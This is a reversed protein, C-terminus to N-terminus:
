EKDTGEKELGVLTDVYDLIDKSKFSELFFPYLSMSSTAMIEDENKGDFLSLVIPIDNELTIKCLPIEKELEDRSLSDSFQECTLFTLSSLLTNLTEKGPSSNDQFKWSVLSQGKDDKSELATLTKIIGGKELIIKKISDEKFSLVKKDRLNDVDKDFFDSFSKDAQYINFDKELMVFTHNLSPAKKGIKFARLSNSGKFAQVEIANDNDLEYRLVDKNESILASIKLNKIVDLINNVNPMDAKFKKDTVVWTDNEKALEITQDKKTIIVRDIKEADIVMTEPLTYNRQNDKKFVLYATLALILVALILYEKKM